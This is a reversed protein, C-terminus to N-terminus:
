YGEADIQDPSVGRAVLRATVEQVMSESGCVRFSSSVELGELHAQVRGRAGSWGDFPRSLIPLYHMGRASFERFEQFYLIDRETRAGQLLTAFALEESDSLSQVMARLPSIGTGMGIFVLADRRRLRSLTFQGGARSLWIAQGPRATVGEPLSGAAAALEFVGPEERRPASAISYYGSPAGERPACLALHQGPDWSYSKPAQVRLGVVRPSEQAVDVIKAEVLGSTPLPAAM